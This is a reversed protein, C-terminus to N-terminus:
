QCEMHLLKAIEETSFEEYYFLHLVIRYQEPLNMLEELLKSEELEINDETFPEKSYIETGERKKIRFQKRCENVAVKMLWNKVHEETTFRKMSCYFKLFTTQVIDDADAMNKLYSYALKYVNDKYKNMYQEFEDKKVRGIVEVIGLIRKKICNSM